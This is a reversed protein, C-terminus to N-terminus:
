KMEAYTGSSGVKHYIYYQFQGYAYGSAKHRTPICFNFAVKNGATITINKEIHTPATTYSTIGTADNNFTQHITQVVHGSPFTANSGLTISPNNQSITVQGDSAISLGTNSGTLDKINSVQLDSPM